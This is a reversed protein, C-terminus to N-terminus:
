PIIKNISSLIEEKTITLHNDLYYITTNIIAGLFFFNYLNNSNAKHINNNIIEYLFSKLLSPINQNIIQYERLHSNINNILLESIYLYYRKQKITKDYSIKPIDKTLTNITYFLLEYKDNFYTYFTPRSIRSSKCIDTIKIDKFSITEMLNILTSSLKNKTKIIRIDNDKTM